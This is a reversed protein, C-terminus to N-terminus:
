VEMVRPANQVRTLYRPGNAYMFVRLGRGGNMDKFCEHKHICYNCQRALKMNGSKGDPVPSFCREPPTDKDLSEKVKTIRESVNIKDKNNPQYLLLEGSEKNMVLFAGKSTGIAEEYASLQAMYGFPDDEPLRGEKFKKFGFGSTTKVDVVEGDIICDIHGKVGDVNIEKQEDTVEHKSLRVLLLVVEELLHGYLFKIPLAKDTSTPVDERNIDYWLQRLPKGLNSMRVSPGGERPTSWTRIASKMREGFDEIDEESIDLAENNSLCAIKEYIDDVVTNLTKM